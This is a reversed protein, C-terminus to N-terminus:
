FREFDGDDASASVGGIAKPAAPRVTTQTRATAAPRRGASSTAVKFFNMSEQLRVAQSSLEESTASLEESFSANKQVVVDLHHISTKILQSAEHQEHSAAAVEEVLEENRQIDKVIKELMSGAKEAVDLSGGTLESIEAAAVGSREALKRVEAAVVAFGKGHEGARAAEIAANLALLNTQRAIEEIISTRDAIDRMANVTQNVAEGGEEADKATRVAIDRTEQAKEMNQKINNAMTEVSASIEEVSAAQEVSGESMQTASAAIEESGAAVMEAATKVSHVVDRLSNIMSGLSRMLVGLENPSKSDVDHTLDGKAMSNASAMGMNVPALVLKNLFFFILAIVMLIGVAGIGWLVRGQMIAGAAIDDEYASMCVVWGTSSSTHFAMMKDRGDWDYTTTGDKKTIATKVFQKDSYDKLIVGANKPHYIFRGAADFIFGYGDNGIVVPDIFTSTFRKWNCFTAVGGIVKGNVDYVPQSIGFILAGDTKSKFISKSVFNKQGSLGAKVYPRSSLDLGSMDNGSIDAGAVCIGNTDFVLSAWLNKNGKVYKDMEKHDIKQGNALLAIVESRTSLASSAAINDAIFLELANVTAKALNDAAKTESKISMGYSTINVYEVLAFIGLIIAITIPLLIARKLSKMIWTLM